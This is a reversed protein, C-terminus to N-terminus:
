EDLLSQQIQLYKRLFDLEEKLTVEQKHDSYLSFRLLDSLQSQQFLFERERFKRSYNIAQQFAFIGACFMTGSTYVNLYFGTGRQHWSEGWVGFHWISVFLSTHLAAFFFPALCLIILNKLRHPYEIPFRYGLWVIFPTLLIWTYSQVFLRVFWISLRGIFYYQPYFFLPLFTYLGLFVLGWKM